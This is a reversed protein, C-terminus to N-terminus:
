EMKGSLLVAAENMSELGAVVVPDAEEAASAALRVSKAVIGELLAVRGLWLRDYKLFSTHGRYIYSLAVGVGAQVAGGHKSNIDVIACISEADNRGKLHDLVREALDPQMEVLRSAHSNMRYVHDDEMKCLVEFVFEALEGREQFFSFFPYPGVNHAESPDEEMFPKEEVSLLARIATRAAQGHGGILWPWGAKRVAEVAFEAVDPNNRAIDKLKLVDEIQIAEGFGSVALKTIEGRLERTKKDAFGFM